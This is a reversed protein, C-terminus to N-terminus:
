DLSIDSVPLQLFSRRTTVFKGCQCRLIKNLHKFPLSMPQLCSFMLHKSFCCIKKFFTDLFSPMCQIGLACFSCYGVKPCFCNFCRTNNSIQKTKEAIKTATYDSNAVLIVGNFPKIDVRLSDLVYCFVWLLFVILFSM